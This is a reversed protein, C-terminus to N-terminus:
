VKQNGILKLINGDGQQRLKSWIRSDIIGRDADISIVLKEGCKEIICM